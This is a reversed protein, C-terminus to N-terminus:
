GVIRRISFIEIYDLISILDQVLFEQKLTTDFAKLLLTRAPLACISNLNNLHENRVIRQNKTFFDDDVNANNINRYLESKEKMDKIYDTITLNSKKLDENIIEKFRDYVEEIEKENMESLKDEFFNYANILNQNDICKMNDNMINEYDSHDLKSLELQIKRKAKKNKTFLYNNNIMEAMETYEQNDNFKNEINKLLLM